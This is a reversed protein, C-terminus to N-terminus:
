RQVDQFEQGARGRRLQARTPVRITPHQEDRGIGPPLPARARRAAVACADAPVVLPNVLPSSPPEDKGPGGSDDLWARWSCAMRVRVRPRLPRVTEARPKPQM